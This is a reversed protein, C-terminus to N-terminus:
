TKEFVLLDALEIVVVASLPEDVVKLDGTIPLLLGKADGHLEEGVTDWIVFAAISAVAVASLARKSHTDM